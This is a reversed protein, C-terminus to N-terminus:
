GGCHKCAVYGKARAEGASSFRVVCAKCSFYRCSANHYKMTNPNGSYAVASVGTKAAKREAAYAFPALLAFCVIALLFPRFLLMTTRISIM